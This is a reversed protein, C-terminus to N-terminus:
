KSGKKRVAILADILEDLREKRVVIWHTIEDSADDQVLGVYETTKYRIVTIEKAPHDTHPFTRKKRSVDAKVKIRM